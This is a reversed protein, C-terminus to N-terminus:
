KHASDVAVLGTVSVASQFYQYNYKPCIYFLQIDVYYYNLKLAV